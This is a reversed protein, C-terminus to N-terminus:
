DDQVLRKGFSVAADQIFGLRKYFKIADLNDHRIQLNIKPCNRDCLCREVEDMLRRGYGQRQWRPDVALYNIWGRHGEFGAMITAMVQEDIVGVLFLEPQVLLKRAIDKHPDNWSRLLGCRAWLDVVSEEDFNQFPRIQM